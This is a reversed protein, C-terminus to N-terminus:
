NGVVRFSAPCSGARYEHLSPMVSDAMPGIGPWESRAITHGCLFFMERVAM